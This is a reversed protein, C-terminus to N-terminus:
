HVKSHGDCQNGKLERENDRKAHIKILKLRCTVRMFIAASFGKAWTDNIANIVTINVYEDAYIIHM